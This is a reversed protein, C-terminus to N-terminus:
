QAVFTVDGRWQKQQELFDQWLDLWVWSIVARWETNFVCWGLFDRKKKAM